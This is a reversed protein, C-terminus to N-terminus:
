RKWKMRRIMLYEIHINTNLYVIKNSYYKINLAERAPVLEQPEICINAYSGLLDALEDPSSYDPNQPAVLYIEEIGEKAPPHLLKYLNNHSVLQCVITSSQAQLRVKKGESRFNVRM